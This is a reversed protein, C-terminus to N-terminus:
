EVMKMTAVIKRKLLLDVKILYPFHLCNESLWRAIFLQERFFLSKPIGCYVATITVNSLHEFCIAIRGHRGNSKCLFGRKTSCCTEHTTQAWGQPFFGRQFPGELKKRTRRRILFIRILCIPLLLVTIEQSTIFDYREFQTLILLSFPHDDRTM